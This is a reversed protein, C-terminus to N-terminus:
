PTYRDDLQLKAPIANRLTRKAWYRDSMPYSTVTQKRGLPSM